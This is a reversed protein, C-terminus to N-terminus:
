PLHQAAPLPLIQLSATATVLIGDQLNEQWGGLNQSHLHTYILHPRVDTFLLFVIKPGLWLKIQTNLDTSHFHRLVACLSVAIHPPLFSPLAPLMQSFVSLIGSCAQTDKQWVTLELM